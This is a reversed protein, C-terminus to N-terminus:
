KLLIVEEKDKFHQDKTLIESKLNKATSLIISDAMSFGPKNKREQVYNKGCDIIIKDDIGIIASKSKIFKLIKEFNWKEKEAKCSLEILVIYPTVIEQNNLLQEIRLANKTNLFYEMWASTDMIIM